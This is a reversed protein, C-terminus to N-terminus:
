TEMGKLVEKTWRTNKTLKDEDALFRKYRSTSQYGLPDMMLMGLLRIMREIPVVVLTMVPGAFATVGFFWVLLIFVTTSLQVWAENVRESRYAFLGVTFNASADTITIELIERQRLTRPNEEEILFNRTRGNAFTYEYLDPIASLRAAVLAANAYEENSTQNHLVTMVAPRTADQEDYTFLVIFALAIIIGLAVRQGTLERMAMGVQSEPRRRPAAQSGTITTKVSKAINKARKDTLRRRSKQRMLNMVNM